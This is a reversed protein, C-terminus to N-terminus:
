PIYEIEIRCGRRSDTDNGCQNRNGTAQDTVDSKPILTFGLRGVPGAVPTCRNRVGTGFDDCLSWPDTNNVLERGYTRTDVVQASGPILMTWEAVSRANVNFTQQALCHPGPMTYTLTLRGYIGTRDFTTGFTTTYRYAHDPAVDEPGGLAGVIAKSLFPNGSITCLQGFACPAWVTKATDSWLRVWPVASVLTGGPPVDVPVYTNSNVSAATQAASVCTVPAIAKFPSTSDKPPAHLKHLTLAVGVVLVFLVAALVRFSNRV